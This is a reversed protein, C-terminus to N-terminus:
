RSRQASHSAFWAIPLGLGFAHILLENILLPFSSIGGDSPALSLPLVVFKMSAWVGLGFVIGSVLPRRNLMPLRRSAGLYVAAAGLAISFHLGLGLLAGLSGSEFAKPGLLGSAVTQFVRTPGVGKMGNVAIVDIADLLGATLGGFLVTDVAGAGQVRGDRTPELDTYDFRLDESWGTEPSWPRRDAPIRVPTEDMEIPRINMDRDLAFLPGCRTPKAREDIPRYENPVCARGPM